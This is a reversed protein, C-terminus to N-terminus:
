GPASVTAAEAKSAQRAKVVLTSFTTRKRPTTEYRSRVALSIQTPPDPDSGTLRNWLGATVSVLNSPQASQLPAYHASITEMRSTPAAKNPACPLSGRVVSPPAIFSVPGAVQKGVM